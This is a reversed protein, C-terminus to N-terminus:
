SRAPTLRKDVEKALAIGVSGAALDPLIFLLWGAKAALVPMLLPVLEILLLISGFRM